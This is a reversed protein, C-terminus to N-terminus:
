CVHTGIPSCGFSLGHQLPSLYRNGRHSTVGIHKYGFLVQGLASCRKMGQNSINSWLGPQSRLALLPVKM